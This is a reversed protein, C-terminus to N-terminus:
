GERNERRMAEDLERSTEFPVTSRNHRHLKLTEQPCALTCVGCGICKDVDVEIRGTKEDLALAEFFCREACTECAICDGGARPVFNSPSMADPNDWRTRGRLQSCCCGCCLCILRDGFRANLTHSVLGLGVMEDLYDIAQQKTVRKGLGNTEFIMAAGGIFICAGIPFKDKCERTGLKETRTRCPCPVLALGEETHNLIYDHAEEASLVQQNAEITSDIPIVRGVPTGEKVTEYKKYFGSEIFYEKYLEAAEIDGPRVDPYFQHANIIMPIIPLCYMNGLGVVGSKAQVDALIREVHELDKVCAEAVEQSSMFADLVNLHQVVEAEEPTYLIELHKIFAEHITGDEARPATHPDQEEIKQAIRNYSAPGGM